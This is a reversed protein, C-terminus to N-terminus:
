LKCNLLNQCLCFAMFGNGFDHYHFYGEIGYTKQHGKWKREGWTPLYGSIHFIENASNLNWHESKPSNIFTEIM